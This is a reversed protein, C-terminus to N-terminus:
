NGILIICPPRPKFASVINKISEDVPAYTEPIVAPAIGLLLNQHARMAGSINSPIKDISTYYYIVVDLSNSSGDKNQYEITVEEWDDNEPNDNFLGNEITRKLDIQGTVLDIEVDNDSARFNKGSVGLTPTANYIPDVITEEQALHYIRDQYNIGELVIYTTDAKGAEPTFIIRYRLGTQTTEGNKDKVSVTIKGTAPDMNLNDPFASYTGTRSVVPPVVYPTAKVYFISDGYSLRNTSQTDPSDSAAKKCAVIALTALSITLLRITNM